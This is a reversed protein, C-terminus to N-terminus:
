TYVTLLDILITVSRYQAERGANKQTRKGRARPTDLAPCAPGWRPLVPMTFSTDVPVAVNRYLGADGAQHYVTAQETAGGEVHAFLCFM